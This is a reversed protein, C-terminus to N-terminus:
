VIVLKIKQKDQDIKKIYVNVKQGYDLGDEYEAMGVLNPTLEIFIGNKNKETERVIGQVTTGVSFRKANDKWSGLLEKYSLIVRGTERDISKVM